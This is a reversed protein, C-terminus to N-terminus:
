RSTAPGPAGARVRLCRHFRANAVLGFLGVGTVIISGLAMIMGLGVSVTVLALGGFFLVLGAVLARV